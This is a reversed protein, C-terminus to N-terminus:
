EVANMFYRSDNFSFVNLASRRRVNKLTARKKFKFGRLEESSFKCTFTFVALLRRYTLLCWPFIIREAISWLSFMAEGAPTELPVRIEEGGGGGGGGGLFYYGAFLLHIEPRRKEGESFYLLSSWFYTQQKCTVGAPTKLPARIKKAQSCCVYKRDDSRERRFNTFVYVKLFTRRRIEYPAPYSLISLRM